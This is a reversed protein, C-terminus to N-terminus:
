VIEEVTIRVQIPKIRVLPLHQKIIAELAGFRSAGDFMLPSYSTAQYTDPEGEVEFRDIKDISLCGELKLM